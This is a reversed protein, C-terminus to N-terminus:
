LSIFAFHESLFLQEFSCYDRIFNQSSSFNDTQTQYPTAYLADYYLSPLLLGQTEALGGIYQLLHQRLSTLNKLLKNIM